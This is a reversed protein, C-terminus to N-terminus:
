KTTANTHDVGFIVNVTVTVEQEGVQIPTPASAAVAGRMMSMEAYPVPMPSAGAGESIHMARGLTVGALKAYQEAKARANVYAKERAQPM